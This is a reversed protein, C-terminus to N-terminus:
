KRRGIRPPRGVESWALVEATDWCCLSGHWLPSSRYWVIGVQLHKKRRTRAKAWFLVEVSHAPNGRDPRPLTKPSRWRM